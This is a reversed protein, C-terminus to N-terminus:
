VFKPTQSKERKATVSQRKRRQRKHNKASDFAGKLSCIGERTTGKGLPAVGAHRLCFRFGWVWNEIGAASSSGYPKDVLNLARHMVRYDRWLWKEQRHLLLMKLFPVFYLVRFKFWYVDTIWNFNVSNWDIYCWQFFFLPAINASIRHIKVSDWLYIPRHSLSRM